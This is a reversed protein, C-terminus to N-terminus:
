LIGAERHRAVVKDALAELDRLTSSDPAGRVYVPDFMEINLKGIMGKLTDVTNGGWGFSGIIAGYRVKPRLINIV